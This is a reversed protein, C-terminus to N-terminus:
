TTGVGEARQRGPGGFWTNEEGFPHREPSAAPGGAVPLEAMLNFQGDVHGSALRGGAAQVRATLNALGRGTRGRPSPPAAPAPGAVGDNSVRLVLLGDGATAKITCTKAASHRLINTVAERLVPALVDDAAEPLTGAAFDARVEIGASTLIHEAADLEAALSLRQGDGTVLRIDARAAACIRSMEKMETAARADDRGILRGILDTKLAIASLGLGLLDHVDRAIRLRERVAATRTLEGNLAELRAALGALWALGYVLLGVGATAAALALANAVKSGGPVLLWGVGFGYLVPYSAVVAAYGAWRWRGPVLLLMSGALFPGLAGIYTRIGPFVFAYVLLAQLALTAPWARPRRGTRAAGSHYLQLAAALVIDGAALATLRASDHYTVVSAVSQATYESLVAVLVLWALRAGVVPSSAAPAATEQGPAQRHRATVARAQAVADRAAVGAAAIQAHARAADRRLVQQAAAAKAAIGALHEGVAAHLSRAAELREGAIAAEAAKGRAAAVEGVIQALRVVGFFALAQGVYFDAASLAGYWAPEVIPGTVTARLVVEAALLGGALLWSLRGPVLLLVLGALLGGTGLQWGHGFVAFPVWTLVAQVALVPWRYRAVLRRTDPFACLLPLVFLAVTFPVQGVAGTTVADLVRRALLLSLVAVALGSARRPAHGALGPGPQGAGAMM